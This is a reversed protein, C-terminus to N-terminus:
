QKSDQCAAHTVIGDYWHKVDDGFKFRQDCSECRKFEVDYGDAKENPPGDGSPRLQVIEGM